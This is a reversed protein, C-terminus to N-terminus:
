RTFNSLLGLPITLTGLRVSGDDLFNRVFGQLDIAKFGKLCSLSFLTEASVESCVPSIILGDDSSPSLGDVSVNGCRSILRLRRSWDSDYVLEFRTTPQDVQLVHSVDFSSDSFRKFLADDFDYGVTSFLSLDVGFYKATFGVYTPPGGLVGSLKLGPLVVDDLCIHGVVYLTSSAM